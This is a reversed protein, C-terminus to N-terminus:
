QKKLVIRKFFDQIFGLGYATLQIFSSIISLFAVKLSKNLVLSHFFILMFYVLLLSDGIYGLPPYFVNLLIVSIIGLTFVAPFFHILKLESPFHKYINIRARGFFHIQKYFQTMSTRRKHFVKAGPILGIKFGHQHIRISYEIDEGLRTIKFGGVKEWVARSVGMNFSRPHFQGLHKENGRIGGTTFVSTMGYSIAKQVPTFSEHAADPGGYADLHHDDLYDKVIKLYDHPILCDSDFIVFYDGKAREFGYNRAFGQGENPKFFYKVDLKDAYRSVIDKATLSSGDEIVVVEFQTYTQLCLTALLEDIEQPRNYLPIIISFFM